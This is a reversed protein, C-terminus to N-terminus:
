KHRYMEIGIKLRGKIKRIAETILKYNIVILLIIITCTSLIIILASTKLCIFSIIGFLILHVLISKLELKLKLYKNVFLYRSVIMSFAGLCQGILISYVGLSHLFVLTFIVTIIAGMVTTTFIYQTKGFAQFASAINTSMTMLVSYLLLWPIYIYSAYYDTNEIGSYFLLVIPLFMIIAAFFVRFLNEIMESFKESFNKDDVSYISSEIVAMNIVSGVMGVVFSLRSSFSYMGNVETGLYKVIVFKGFGMYFWLASLNLILPFSYRTMRKLVTLDVLKINFIKLLKLKFEVYVIISLQGIIFSIYLGSSGWKLHVIFIYTAVLNLIASIAGSFVFVYNNGLARAYYQWIQALGMSTIMTIIYINLDNSFVFLIGGCIVVTATMGLSIFITTSIYIDRKSYDKEPLIFKLIAEWIALYAIPLIFNAITQAYDFYGMDETTIYFAYLPVLIVGILKTSISGFFYILSKRLVGETSM